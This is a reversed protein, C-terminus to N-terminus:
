KEESQDASEGLFPTALEVLVNFNNQLEEVNKDLASLQSMEAMPVRAPEENEGAEKAAHYDMMKCLHTMADHDRDAEMLLKLHALQDTTKPPLQSVTDNGDDGEMLRALTSKKKGSLEAKGGTVVKNLITKSFSMSESMETIYKDDDSGEAVKGIEEGDIIGFQGMAVVPLRKNFVEFMYDVADDPLASLKDLDLSKIEAPTMKGKTTLASLRSSLQVRKSELQVKQATKKFGVSLKAFKKKAAALKKDEKPEKPKVDKESEDKEESLEDKKKDKKDDDDDKPKEESLEDTPTPKDKPLKESLEKKEDDTMKSLKEDADKESMKEAEMLHKKLEDMGHDGKSLYKDHFKKLISANPAAPFPTITLENLKGADLDAGISLHTWRGDKVRDVNEAGLVLIKGLLATKGEFEGISLQGVVRGVTDWGSTSHDVQLPPCNRMEIVGAQSLKALALNHNQALKELIPKTIEVEGSASDFKGEYVFMAQKELRNSATEQEQGYFSGTQFLKVNM